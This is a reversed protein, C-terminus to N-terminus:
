GRRMTSPDAGDIEPLDARAARRGAALRAAHPAGPCSERAACRRIAPTTMLVDGLNDLRVCLVNRRPGLPRTPPPPEVPQSPKM